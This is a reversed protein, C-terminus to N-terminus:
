AALCANEIAMKNFVCSNALVVVTLVAGAGRQAADAGQRAVAYTMLAGMCGLPARVYANLWANYRKEALKDLVGHKVLTLLVYDLGGPLGTAQFYIWSLAKTRMLLSFPMCLFVSFLHHYQDVVSLQFFCVHYLHLCFSLISGWANTTPELPAALPTRLIDAVEPWSVACIAANVAAHLQFWRARTGFLLVLVADVLAIPLLAVCYWAWNEFPDAYRWADLTFM